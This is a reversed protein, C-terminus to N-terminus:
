PNWGKELVQGEVPNIDNTGSHEGTAKWRVVVRGSNGRRRVINLQVIYDENVVEDVRLDLSDQLSPLTTTVM